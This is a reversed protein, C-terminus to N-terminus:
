ISLKIDVSLHLSWVEVLLKAKWCVSVMKWWIARLGSFSIHINEGLIFLSTGHSETIESNPLCHTWFFKFLSKSSIEPSGYNHYKEFSGFWPFLEQRDVFLYHFHSLYLISYLWQQATVTIVHAFIFLM